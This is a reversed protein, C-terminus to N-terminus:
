PLPNTENVWYVTQRDASVIAGLFSARAPSSVADQKLVIINEAREEVHYLHITSEDDKYMLPAENVYSLVGVADNPIYHFAKGSLTYTEPNVREAYYAPSIDDVM